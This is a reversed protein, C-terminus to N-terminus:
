RRAPRPLFDGAEGRHIASVENFGKSLSPGLILRTATEEGNLVQAGCQPGALFDHVPFFPKDVLRELAIRVLVQAPDM